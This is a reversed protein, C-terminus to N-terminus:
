MNGTCTVFLCFGFLNLFAGAEENNSASYEGSAGFNDTLIAIHLITTKDNRQYFSKSHAEEEKDLSGIHKDVQQDLFRMMRVEGYHAARFLATEGLQNRMTLLYPVLYLMERALPILSNATAVEHLITNGATNQRILKNHQNQPLEELLKLVLEGKKHYTAVHLVTDNHVTLTQLAGKPSQRCLEIVREDEGKVLAKYLKEKLSLIADDVM